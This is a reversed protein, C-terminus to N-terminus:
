RKNIKLNTQRNLEKLLKNEDSSFDQCYDLLKQDIFEM